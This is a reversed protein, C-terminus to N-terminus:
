ATQKAKKREELEEERQIRRAEQAKAERLLAILEDFTLVKDGRTWTKEEKDEPKDKFHTIFEVRVGKKTEKILKISDFYYSNRRSYWMNVQHGTPCLQIIQNMRYLSTEGAPKVITILDNREIQRQCNENESELSRVAGQLDYQKNQNKAYQEHFEMLVEKCTNIYDFMNLALKMVDRAENDAKLWGAETTHVSMKGSSHSIEWRADGTKQNSWDKPGYYYVDITNTYGQRTYDNWKLRILSDSIHTQLSEMIKTPITPYQKDYEVLHARFAAQIEKDRESITEYVSTLEKKLATLALTNAKIKSELQSNNM